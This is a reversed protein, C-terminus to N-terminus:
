RTRGRLGAAGESRRTRRRGRARRRGRRRSRAARSGGRRLPAAGEGQVLAARVGREPPRIVRAPPWPPILSVLGRIDAAFDPEGPFPSPRGEHYHLRRGPFSWTASHSSSGSFLRAQPFIGYGKRAVLTATAPVFFALRPSVDGSSAGAPLRPRARAAVTSSPPAPPTTTTPACASGPIRLDPPVPLLPFPLLHTCPADAGLRAPHASRRHACRRKPSGLGQPGEPCVDDRGM